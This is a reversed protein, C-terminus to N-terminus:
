SVIGSKEHDTMLMEGQEPTTIAKITLTDTENILEYVISYTPWNCNVLLYKYEILSYVTIPTSDLFDQYNKRPGHKIEFREIGDEEYSYFDRIGGHDWLVLFITTEDKSELVAMSLAEPLRIVDNRDNFDKAEM